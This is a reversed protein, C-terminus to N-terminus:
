LCIPSALNINSSRTLFFTFLIQKLFEYKGIVFPVLFCFSVCSYCWSHRPHIINSSPFTVQIHPTSCLICNHLIIRCRQYDEFLRCSNCQRGERRWGDNNAITMYHDHESLFQVCHYDGQEPEPPSWHGNSRSRYHWKSRRSWELTDYDKKDPALM